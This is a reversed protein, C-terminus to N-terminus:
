RGGDAEALRQTAELWLTAARVQWMPAGVVDLAPQALAVAARVEAVGLVACARGLGLVAYTRVSLDSDSLLALLQHAADARQTADLMALQEDLIDLHDGVFDHVDRPWVEGALVRRVDVDNAGM